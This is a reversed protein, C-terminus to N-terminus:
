FVKIDVILNDDAAEKFNPSDWFPTSPISNLASAKKAFYQSM